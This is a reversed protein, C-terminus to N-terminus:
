RSIAGGIQVKRGTAVEIIDSGTVQLVVIEYLGEPIDIAPCEAGFGALEFGPDNLAQAVDPRKVRVAEIYRAEEGRLCVLVRLPAVRNERDVAWGSVTIMGEQPVAVVNNQELTDSAVGCLRDVFAGVGFTSLRIPLGRLDEPLSALVPAVVGEGPTAAPAVTPEEAVKQPEEQRACGSCILMSISVMVVLRTM